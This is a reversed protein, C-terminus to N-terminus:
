LLMCRKSRFQKNNSIPYAAMVTLIMNLPVGSIDKLHLLIHRIINLDQYFRKTHRWLLGVPWLKVLGANAATGSSLSVAAIHIIPFICLFSSTFLFIYNFVIFIKRSTTENKLM